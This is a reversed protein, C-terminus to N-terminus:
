RMGYAFAAGGLQSLVNGFGNQGAMLAANAQNAANQTNNFSVNNAYNQGVGALASAGSLGVGQQNALLGAYQGFTNDAEQGARSAIAKMAAGSQLVGAGAYNSNVADLAENLRFQYGTSDRFTQFADAQPNGQAQAAVTPQATPLQQFRDTQNASYANPGMGFDRGRYEVGRALNREPGDMMGGYSPQSAFQALANPQQMQPQAAQQQAPALGLLANLQDGAANGRAMFPSLAQQNQNYIDRTLANNAQANQQSVDAAKNAANKQSNSSIVSGVLGLGGGILAGIPM